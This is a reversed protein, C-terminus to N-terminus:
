KRACRWHQWGRVRYYQKRLSHRACVDLRPTRAAVNRHRKRVTDAPVTVADSPIASSYLHRAATAPPFDLASAWRRSFSLENSSRATVGETQVRKPESPRAEGHVARWAAISSFVAAPLSALIVAARMLAVLVTGSPLPEQGCVSRFAGATCRRAECTRRFGGDA